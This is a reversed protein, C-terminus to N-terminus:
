AAVECHELYWILFNNYESFLLKVMWPRLLDTMHSRYAMLLRNLPATYLDQHCLFTNEVVTDLCCICTVEIVTGTCHM